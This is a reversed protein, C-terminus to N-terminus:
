CSRSVARSSSRTRAWRMSFVGRSCARVTLWVRSGSNSVGAFLICLQISGIWSIVDKRYERLQHTEYYGQFVGFANSMGFQVFSALFAGAITLWATLGGDPPPGLFPPDPRPAPEDEEIVGKENELEIDTEPNRASSTTLEEVHTYDQPTTTM